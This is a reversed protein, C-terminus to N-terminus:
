NKYDCYLSPPISSFHPLAKYTNLHLNTSIRIENKYILSPWQLERVVLFLTLIYFFYSTFEITWWSFFDIMFPLLPPILPCFLYSM